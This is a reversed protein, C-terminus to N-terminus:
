ISNDTIKKIAYVINSGNDWLTKGGDDFAVYVPQVKTKCLVVNAGNNWLVQTGDDWKIYVPVLIDNSNKEDKGILIGAGVKKPVIAKIAIDNLVVTKM